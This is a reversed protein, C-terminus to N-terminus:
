FMETERKDLIGTKIGESVGHLYSSAYRLAGMARQERALLLVTLLSSGLIYAHTRGVSCYCGDEPINLLAQWLRLIMILIQHKFFLSAGKTIEKRKTHFALTTIPQKEKRFKKKLPSDPM